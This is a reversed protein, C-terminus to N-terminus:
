QRGGQQGPQVPWVAPGYGYGWYAPPDGLKPLTDNLFVSQEAAEAAAEQAEREELAAQSAQVEAAVAQRNADERSREDDLIAQREGPTMWEGEFEVFGQARFSEEETVWKGDHLVRGLARNAEPDNPVASVVKSWAERSQVGLGQRSAWRGLDRWGEIDNGATAAARERYEKLPSAGKEIEVVTTMKVTMRGAGIDITVSEETQELIEGTLRGGGQLHIVDALLPATTLAIAAFIALKM